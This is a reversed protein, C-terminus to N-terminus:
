AEEVSGTSQSGMSNCNYFRHAAGVSAQIGPGHGVLLSALAILLGCMAVSLLVGVGGGSCSSLSHM